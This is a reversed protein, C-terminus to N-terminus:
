APNNIVNFQDFRGRIEGPRGFSPPVVSLPQGQNLVPFVNSGATNDPNDMSTQSVTPTGLYDYHLEPPPTVGSAVSPRARFNLELIPRVVIAFIQPPAFTYGALAPIIDYLGNFLTSGTTWNGANDTVAQGSTPGTWTVTVGSLPTSLVTVTGSGSQSAQISSATFNIGTVDASTITVNQSLPNFLYFPSQPTVTYNGPLLGPIGYNGTSDALVSGGSSGSYTVSVGGAGANGSISFVAPPTFALIGAAWVTTATSTFTASYNGAVGATTDEIGPLFTSGGGSRLTYTGGATYTNTSYIGGVLLENNNVTTINGSSPNAGSGFASTSTDFSGVTPYEAIVYQFVAGALTVTVTNPGEQCNLAYAMSFNNTTLFEIASVVNWANGQSDSVVPAAGGNNRIVCILTNGQTNDSGFATSAPSPINLSSYVVPQVPAWAM